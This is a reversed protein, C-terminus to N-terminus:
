EGGATIEVDAAKWDTGMVDAKSDEKTIM